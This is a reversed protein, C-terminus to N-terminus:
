DTLNLKLTLFNATQSSSLVNLSLANITDNLLGLAALENAKYLFQSKHSNQETAIVFDLSDSGSGIRITDESIISNM